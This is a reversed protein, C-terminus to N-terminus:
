EEAWLCDDKDIRVEQWLHLKGAKLKDTLISFVEKDKSEIDIVVGKEEEAIRIIRGEYKINLIKIIKGEKKM